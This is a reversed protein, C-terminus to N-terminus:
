IYLSYVHNYIFSYFKSKSSVFVHSSIINKKLLKSAFLIVFLLIKLKISICM